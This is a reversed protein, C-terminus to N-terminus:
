EKHFISDEILHIVQNITTAAFKVKVNEIHTKVTSLTIKSTTAFKEM